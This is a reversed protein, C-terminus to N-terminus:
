ESLLVCSRVAVTVQCDPVVDCTVIVDPPSALATATPVLKILAVTLATLPEVVIVTIAAVNSDIATVGAFGDIAFPRVCCNVAVPVYESLLM